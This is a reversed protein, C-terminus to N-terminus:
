EERASADTFLRPAVLRMLAVVDAANDRGKVGIDLDVTVRSRGRVMLAAAGVVDDYESAFYYGSAGPVIEPLPLTGQDDLHERVITDDGDPTLMVTLVKEREGDRRYAACTGEGLGGAATLNFYGRVLPDRAGTMLEVARLPIQDCIYPASAVTPLPTSDIEPPEEACGSLSLALLSVVALAPLNRM